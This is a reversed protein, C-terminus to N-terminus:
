FQVQEGEAVAEEAPAEGNGNGSSLMNVQDCIVKTSYHTQGDKEYKETKLRGEVYVLQGKKCYQNTIEALKAWATCNFWETETKKEGNSTYTRDAAVSFSTVATGNPIYRMEPDKGLRGIVM